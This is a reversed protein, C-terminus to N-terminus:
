FYHKELIGLLYYLQMKIIKMGGLVKDTAVNKINKLPLTVNASLKYEEPLLQYMPLKKTTTQCKMTKKMNKTM